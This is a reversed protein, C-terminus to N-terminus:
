GSNGNMERHFSRQHRMAQIAWFVGNRPHGTRYILVHLGSTVRSVAHADQSHCMAAAMAEQRASTCGSTLQQPLGEAIRKDGNKRHHRPQIQNTPVLAVDDTTTNSLSEIMTKKEMGEHDYMNVNM